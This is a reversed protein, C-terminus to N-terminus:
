MLAFIVALMFITACACLKRSSTTSMGAFFRIWLIYEFDCLCVTMLFCLFNLACPRAHLLLTYFHWGIIYILRGLICPYRNICYISIHELMLYLHAGVIYLIANWCHIFHARVTYLIRSSKKSVRNAWSAYFYFFWLVHFGVVLIM